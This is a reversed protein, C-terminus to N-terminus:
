ERIPEPNADPVRRTLRNRSPSGIGIVVSPTCSCSTRGSVSNDVPICMIMQRRRPKPSSQVSRALVELTRSLEAAYTPGYPALCLVWPMDANAGARIERENENGKRGKQEMDLAACSSSQARDCCDIQNHTEKSSRSPATGPAIVNIM